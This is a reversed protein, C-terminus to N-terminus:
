AMLTVSFKVNERTLAASTTVVNLGRRIQSELVLIDRCSLRPVQDLAM